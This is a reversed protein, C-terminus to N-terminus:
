YLNAEDFHTDSTSYRFDNNANYAEDYGDNANKNLIYAYTGQLYGNGFLHPLPSITKYSGDRGPHTLYVNAQSDHM